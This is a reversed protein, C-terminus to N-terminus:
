RGEKTGALAAQAIQNGTSTRGGLNALVELAARLGVIEQRLEHIVEAEDISSDHTAARHWKAEAQTARATLRAIEQQAETFKDGISTHAKSLEEISVQQRAIIKKNTDREETMAALREHLSQNDAHLRNAADEPSQFPTGPLWVGTM